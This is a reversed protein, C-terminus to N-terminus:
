GRARLRNLGAAAVLLALGAGSAIGGPLAPVPTTLSTLAAACDLRPYSLGNSSDTVPTPSVTLASAIADIPASPVADMLVAACAAAVPSAFSTGVAGISGGGINTTTLIGGPAFVDTTTSANSWCTVQDAETTPDTCGFHSRSGVDADWVAGVSVADEVCAPAIMGFGSGDNGAGAVSLTGRAHLPAIADAFAEATTDATDCHGQHLGTGFSMNVVDVDPLDTNIWALASLADSLFGNGSDDFVKLAVISSGPAGGIMGSVTSAVAGAVRTGHGSVLDEASGPGSQSSTEDPCCDNTCWCREDVLGGLGPHDTDIGTDIIAVTIGSGDFGMGHLSDLEVLPIGEALQLELKVDPGVRRVGPARVISALAQPSVELAVSRLGPYRRLVRGEGAPLRSVVGTADTPEDLLVIVRTRPETELRDLVRAEVGAARLRAREVIDFPQAGATGALLDTLLLAAMALVHVFMRLM